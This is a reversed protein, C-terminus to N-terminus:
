YNIFPFLYTGMAKAKARAGAKCGLPLHHGIAVGLRMAGSGSLINSVEFRAPGGLVTADAM